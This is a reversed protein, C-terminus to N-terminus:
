GTSAPVMNEDFHVEEYMARSTGWVLQRDIVHRITEPNVIVGCDHACVLRPIEIMGSDRHVRVVAILAIYAGALQRYAFGRGVAVDADAQAPPPGFASLCSKFGSEIFREQACEGAAAILTGYAAIPVLRHM